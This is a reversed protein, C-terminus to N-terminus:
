DSGLETLHSITSGAPDATMVYLAETTRWYLPQNAPWLMGTGQGRTSVYFSKDTSLLTTLKRKPTAPLLPVWGVAQSVFDTFPQARRAPLESTLFTGVGHVPVSVAAPEEQLLEELEPTPDVSGTEM